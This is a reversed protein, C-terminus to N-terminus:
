YEYSGLFLSIKFNFIVSKILNNSTESIVTFMGYCKQKKKKNKKAVNQVSLPSPPLSLLLLIFTLLSM